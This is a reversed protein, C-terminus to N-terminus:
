TTSGGEDDPADDALDDSDPQDDALAVDLSVRQEGSSDVAEVTVTVVARDELEAFDAELEAPEVGMSFTPDELGVDPALPRAGIPTLAIAHVCQRVDDYTDQEVAALGAALTARLPFALHPITPM